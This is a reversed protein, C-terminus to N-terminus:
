IFEITYEYIAEMLFKHSRKRLIKRKCFSLGIEFFFRFKKLYNIRM